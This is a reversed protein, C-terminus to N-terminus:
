YLYRIKEILIEDVTIRGIYRHTIFSIMDICIVYMSFAYIYKVPM